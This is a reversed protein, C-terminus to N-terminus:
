AKPRFDARRRVRVSGVGSASLVSGGAREGCEGIVNSEAQSSGSWGETSRGAAGRGVRRGRRVGYPASASM